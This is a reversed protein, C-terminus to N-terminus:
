DDVLAAVAGLRERLTAADTAAQAGARQAEALADELRRATERLRRAERVEEGARELERTTRRATLQTQELESKVRELEASAASTSKERKGVEARAALAEKRFGQAEREANGLSARIEDYKKEAAVVRAAETRADSLLVSLETQRSRLEEIERRAPALEAQATEIEARSNAANRGREQVLADIREQTTVAADASVRLAEQLRKIEAAQELLGDREADLAETAVGKLLDLAKHHREAEHERRKREREADERARHAEQRVVEMEDAARALEERAAVLAAHVSVINSEVDAEAAEGPQAVLALVPRTIRGLRRFRSPQPGLQVALRDGVQLTAERIAAPDGDWAFSAHWTRTSHRVNEAPVQDIRGDVHLVLVSRDLVVGHVGSWTGQVELRGPAAVRFAELDFTAQADTIQDSRTM